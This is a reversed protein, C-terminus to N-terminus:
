NESIESHFWEQSNKKIKKNKVLRVKVIVEALKKIFNSYADSVNDLNKYELFIIEVLAKAYGDIIYNKFSRFKIQKHGGRKRTTIKITYYILQHDSLEINLIGRQTVRDSVNALIHDIISSSSFNIRNPSEIFQNLGFM